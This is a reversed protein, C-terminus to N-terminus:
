EGCCYRIFDFLLAICLLL